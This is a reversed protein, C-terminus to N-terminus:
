KKTRTSQRPIQRPRPPPPQAWPLSPTVIHRLFNDSKLAGLRFPQALRRRAVQGGPIFLTRARRVAELFLFVIWKQPSVRQVALDFLWRHLWFGWFATGCKTAGIAWHRPAPDIDRYFCDIILVRIEEFFEDGFAALNKRPAHGAHRCVHVPLDCALDLAAARHQQHLSL